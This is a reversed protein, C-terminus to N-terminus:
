YFFILHQGGAFIPVIVAVVVYAFMSSKLPRESIQSLFTGIFVLMAILIAVIPAINGGINWAVIYVISKIVWIGWVMFCLLTLLFTLGLEAFRSKITTRHGDQICAIFLQNLVMIATFVITMFPIWWHVRYGPGIYADEIAPSSTISPYLTMGITFAIVWILSAKSFMMNKFYPKLEQLSNRVPEYYRYLLYLAIALGIPIFAMESALYWKSLMGIGGVIFCTGLYVGIIVLKEKIPKKQEILKKKEEDSIPTVEFLQPRIIYVLLVLVPILMISANHVADNAKSAYSVTFSDRYIVVDENSIINGRVYKEIWAVSEQVVLPIHLINHDEGELTIFKVDPRSKTPDLVKYFDTSCQYDVIVDANGHIILVNKPATSNILNVPSKGEIDRVFMIDGIPEINAALFDIERSINLVGSLAVLAKFRGQGQSERIYVLTGMLTGMSHGIVAMNNTDVVKNNAELYDIFALVDLPEKIGFTTTERNSGHGRFEPALVAYGMNLFTVYTGFFTNYDCSMGHCGVILPISRNTYDRHSANIYLLAKIETNDAAKIRIVEVSFRSSADSIENGQKNYYSVATVSYYITGALFLACFGVAILRIIKEKEM